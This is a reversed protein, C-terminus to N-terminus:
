RIYRLFELLSGWIRYHAMFIFLVHHRWKGPLSGPLSGGSENRLAASTGKNVNYQSNKLDVFYHFFYLYSEYLYSSGTCVQFGGTIHLLISCDSESKYGLFMIPVFCVCSFTKKEWAVRPLSTKKKQHFNLLKIRNETVFKGTETYWWYIKHSFNILRINLHIWPLLYNSFITSVLTDNRTPRWQLLCAVAPFHKYHFDFGPSNGWGELRFNSAHFISHLYITIINDFHEEGLTASGCWQHRPRVRRPCQM